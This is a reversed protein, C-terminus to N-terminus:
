IKVIRGTIIQNEFQISYFYIGRNLDEGDIIFKNIGTLIKRDNNIINQGLRDFVRFSATGSKVSNLIIETSQNFPNPFPNLVSFDLNDNDQIGLEHEILIFLSTDDVITYPLPFGMIYPQVEIGIPYYGPVEPVGEILICYSIGVQFLNDVDNSVWTLGQPMNSIAELKLHSLNLTNGEYDVSSPAWITITQYYNENVRGDPLSDPCIQGPIDTDICLTDPECQSYSINIFFIFILFTFINKM